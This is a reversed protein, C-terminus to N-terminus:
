RPKLSPPKFVQPSPASLGPPLFLRTSLCRPETPTINGDGDCDAGNHGPYAGRRADDANSGDGDALELALAVYDAASVVEDGNADGRHVGAGTLNPIRTVTSGVVLVDYRGDDNFDGSTAMGARVSSIVTAENRLGGAGRNLVLTTANALQDNIVLDALGDGDLDRAALGGPTGDLRVQRGAAINGSGDNILTTATRTIPFTVAADNSGDGDFDAIALSAPISALTLATPEAFGGGVQGAFVFLRESASDTAALDI